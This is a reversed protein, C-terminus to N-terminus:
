LLNVPDIDIAIKVAPRIPREARQGVFLRCMVGADPAQVIIQVRHFRQIRSIVAPMPGRVKVPLQQAAVIHDLRRRLAGAAAELKDHKQDRLVIMALRWHPPLNCAERHKMEEAVFADFDQDMAFKIAPQEPFYTQVYVTGPKESRGARGAVQSILQYTRENSRFDPLYLCTDASIIGVLTM